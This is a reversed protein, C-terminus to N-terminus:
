KVIIMLILSTLGVIEIDCWYIIPVLIAFKILLDMTYRQHRVLPNAYLKSLRYLTLSGSILQYTDTM